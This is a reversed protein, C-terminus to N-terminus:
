PLTYNGHPDRVILGDAELAALVRPAQNEDAGPLTAAALLEAERLANTFMGPKSHATATRHQERLLAMVRGRAQRDTGSWAQTKKSGTSAPFGAQRWACQDALPCQTCAPKRATCTLAGFEMVSVNWHAAEHRDSPLYRWAEHIETRTPAGARPLERGSFLRAFVRRINTDLVPIRQHFHFATVASATYPGIGPLTLLADYTAPVTGNHDKVIATACDRLRLARSPYGLRDWAVLIDSRAAQALAAPTPWTEMWKLWIPQVRPIPTQQSMVEFVLTGWASVSDSRMPLDRGNHDYWHMLTEHISALPDHATSAPTSSHSNTM